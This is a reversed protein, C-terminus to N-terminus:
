AQMTFRERCRKGEFIPEINFQLETTIMGAITSTSIIIQDEYDFSCLM